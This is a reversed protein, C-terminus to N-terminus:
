NKRYVFVTVPPPLPNQLLAPLVTYKGVFTYGAPAPTGQVLMVLSGPILGEGHLGVPGQPGVPGQSGAVGQPGQPGTAGAPGALGQSGEPGQPGMPGEPGQPGPAGPPGAPTPPNAPPVYLGMGLQMQEVNCRIFYSMQQPYYVTGNMTLGGMQTWQSLNLATSPLDVNTLATQSFDDLQFSIMQVPAGDVDLNNHSHFVFNDQDYYDNVLEVLFDVNAPNSKFTRNGITVTVGYPASSHLYDGVQPSTNQDPVSLNYTYYGTFPTGVTLDPFPPDGVLIDYTTVTGKFSVTVDQAQAAGGCTVLLAAATFARAVGYKM